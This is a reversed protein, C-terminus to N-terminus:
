TASDGLKCPGRRLGLLHYKSNLINGMQSFLLYLAIQSTQRSSGQASVLVGGILQNLPGIDTQNIAEPNVSIHLHIPHTFLM